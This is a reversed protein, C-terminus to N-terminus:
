QKGRAAQGVFPATFIVDWARSNHKLLSLGDACFSSKFEKEKFFNWAASFDKKHLDRTAITIHPHFPRTEAKTKYGASSFFRDVDAKLANLAENERVAIFLTRPRFASFNKTAAVFPAMSSAMAEVDKKLTEEKEVNMWFPPLLTIHAPSKLGVKCGYKEHMWRKYSLIKQDLHLPLVIAAFYM